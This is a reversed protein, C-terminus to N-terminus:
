LTTIFEVGGWQKPWSSCTVVDGATADRARFRTAHGVELQEATLTRNGNNPEFAAPIYEREADRLPRVHDPSFTRQRRRALRGALHRM